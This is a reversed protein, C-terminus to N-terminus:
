AVLRVYEASAERVGNVPALRLVERLLDPMGLDARMHPRANDIMARAERQKFGMACLASFAQAWADASAGDFRPSGYSRGDAHEFTFGASFTGRIILRGDHVMGHHAGCLAILREPDHDGGESRLDIHHVDIFVSHRCGPVACRHEHRALVARRVAPPVNQSAREPPASADVNGVHQADCCAAEFAADEITVHEAGARQTV